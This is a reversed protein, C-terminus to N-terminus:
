GKVLVRGFTVLSNHATHATASDQQFWMYWLEEETHQVFFETMLLRVYRDFNITEVYFIPGTRKANIAYWVGVKINHLPVEHSLYPNVLRWYWTNQSSVHGHL